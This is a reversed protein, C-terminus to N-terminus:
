CGALHATNREMVRNALSSPQGLRIPTAMILNGL